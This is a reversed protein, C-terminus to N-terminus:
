AGAEQVLLRPCGCRARGTAELLRGILAAAIYLGLLGGILRRSMYAQEKRIQAIAGAEDDPVREVIDRRAERHAEIRRETRCRTGKRSRVAFRASEDVLQALDCIDAVIEDGFPSSM